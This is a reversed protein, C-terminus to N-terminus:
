ADGAAKAAKGAKRRVLEGQYRIGKGKYPEPPRVSRINASVQGVLQKDIGKVTIKDNGQVDFTIGEVAKIEVPHSFGVTLSLDNGAKTVRYGTGVFELNKEFGKTVGEIMNNVLSRTLGHLARVDPNNSRRSFSLVAGEQKIAIKHSVVQELTGLPGKVEVKDPSTTVTVSDPITIPANGIRSMNVLDSM